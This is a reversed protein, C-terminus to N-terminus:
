IKNKFRWVCLFIASTSSCSRNNVQVRAWFKFHIDLNSETHEAEDTKEYGENDITNDWIELIQMPLNNDAVNDANEKRCNQDHHHERSPFADFWDIRQADYYAKSEVERKKGM